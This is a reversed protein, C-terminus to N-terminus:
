RSTLIYLKKKGRGKTDIDGTAVLDDLIAKLKEPDGFRPLLEDFTAGDVYLLMSHTLMDRDNGSVKSTKAPPAAAEPAPKETKKSPRGRKAQPLRVKGAEQAATWTDVVDCPCKQQGCAERAFALLEGYEGERTEAPGWRRLDPLSEWLGITAGCRRPDDTTPRPLPDTPHTEALTYAEVQAMARDRDRWGNWGYAQPSVDAFLVFRERPVNLKGRIQLYRPNKFDDKGFEPPEPIKVKEGQDERDQLAWVEQWKRLKRIGEATYVRYPNDPLANDRLLWEAIPALDIDASGAYIKAVAIVRAGTEGSSWAAVIEELRYPRPTALPGTFLDELRDLLWNQAATKTEEALDPTQWRRKFQPQEILRVDANSAIIRLRETIRDRTAQSYHEPITTTEDHGHRRFWETREDPDCSANHRALLIEFPRHGPTLPEVDDPGVTEHGVLLGYSGYTLWDLEEQLAVMRHTLHKYRDRAAALRAPLDNATWANSALVAATLCATRDEATQDLAAALAIRLPGSTSVIPTKELKSSDFEFRREWEENSIGGGIGGNGKDFCVQKLWFGITSSNLLGLLDLHQELTASFALKILPATRNFVKGARELIFHNHTAVFALGIRWNSFHRNPYFMSYEYFEGGADRKTKFGKGQRLWLRNRFRWLVAFYKGLSGAPATGSQSYPFVIDTWPEITWDRVAEGGVYPQVCEDSMGWRARAKHDVLYIEDMRTVAGFGILEVRESLCSQRCASLKRQLEPAGGGNVNWPHEHFLSRDYLSITVFLNDDNPERGAATIARWVKGDAPNAPAKPEGRKGGICRLQKNAPPRSRAVVIVTPTGHGPIYAGSTDVIDTIDWRPMVREVLSSGFERKMFANGTIQGTFAGKFGLSFLREVFPAALGYGGCASEPWFVRYDDRKQPDTPQVYPPNGVVVHFARGLFRKNEERERETAYKSLRDSATFLDGQAGQGSKGEWPILSDMARLNLGLGALKELSREGTRKMVELLLRFRAVDVAYPNIDCGWVSDLARACADWEPLGQGLWFAAMRHFAGILFHGSGCTPDLVRFADGKARLAVPDFERLAPVLTQDLIFEEVFDPTQLLAYRDRVEADLDQYLDGLFRSDFDRDTWAYVLNGKGDELHWLEWVQQCIEESPLPLEDEAPVFLAPFDEALDRFVWKFYARVRLAPAVERFAQLGWLGRIRAPELLGLDELVRVYVTRLLLQVASRGAVVEVYDDFSGGTESAVHQRELRARLDRDARVTKVHEKVISKELKELAKKLAKYTEDQM